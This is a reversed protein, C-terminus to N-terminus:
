AETFQRLMQRPNDTDTTGGPVVRNIWFAAMQGIGLVGIALPGVGLTPPTGYAPGAGGTTNATPPQGASTASGDDTYTAVGVLTIRLSSAGYSGSTGSRYLKISTAGAPNTWALTVKKTTVDVIASVEISAITQGNANLITLVYYYTGTAGWVGGAGAAGVTATIGWPPSLSPVDMGCRFMSAGDNSGVQTLAVSLATSVRDGVNQVWFKEATQAVGAYADAWGKGTIQTYGDAAFHKLLVGM